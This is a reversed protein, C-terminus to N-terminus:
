ILGLIWQILKTFAVPIDRTIIGPSIVLTSLFAGGLMAMLAQGIKGKTKVWTFIGLGATILGIVTLAGASLPTM